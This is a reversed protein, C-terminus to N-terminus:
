RGWRVAGGLELYKPFLAPIFPQGPYDYEHNGIAVMYPIQRAIPAVQEGFAEWVAAHGMAYGLDGIHLAFRGPARAM